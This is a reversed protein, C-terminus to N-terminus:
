EAGVLRYLSLFAFTIAGLVCALASAMGINFALTLETYVLMPLVEFQQAITFATGFAGMSTAFTLASGAALAPLLAPVIVYRATEFTSAGLSRAADELSRDLKEVSALVTITARPVSFYLYAVFLGGITYAFSIKRGILAQTANALIGTNGFLIIIMFGVVVGPFALPFNILALLLSRGRMRLRALFLALAVSIVMTVATVALSLLITNVVSRRYRVNEVVALYNKASLSTWGGVSSLFLFVVPYIFFYGV